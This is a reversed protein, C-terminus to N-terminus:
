GKKEINAVPYLVTKFHAEGTRPNRRRNGLVMAGDFPITLFNLFCTFLIDPVFALTPRKLLWQRSHPYARQSNYRLGGRAAEPDYVVQREGVARRYVRADTVLVCFTTVAVEVGEDFVKPCRALPREQGFHVYTFCILVYRDV